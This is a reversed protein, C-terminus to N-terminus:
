IPLKKLKRTKLWQKESEKKWKIQEKTLEHGDMIDSFGYNLGKTITGKFLEEESKPKYGTVKCWKSYNFKGNKDAYAKSM